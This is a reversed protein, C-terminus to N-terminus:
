ISIPDVVNEITLMRNLDNRQNGTGSFRRNPAHDIIIKLIFMFCVDKSVLHFVYFGQKGILYKHRIDLSSVIFFQVDCMSSVCM